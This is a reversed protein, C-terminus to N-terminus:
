LSMVTWFICFHLGAKILKKVKKQHRIMSIVFNEYSEYEHTSDMINQSVNFKAFFKLFYVPRLKIIM